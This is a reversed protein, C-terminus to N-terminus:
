FRRRYLRARERRITIELAKFKTRVEDMTQDLQQPKDKPEEVQPDRELPSFGFPAFPLIIQKWPIQRNSRMLTRARQYGMQLDSVSSRSNERDILRVGLLRDFCHPFDRPMCIRRACQCSAQQAMATPRRSVGLDRPTRCGPSKGLPPLGCM